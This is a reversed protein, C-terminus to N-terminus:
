AYIIELLRNIAGERSLRNIITVLEGKVMAQAQWGGWAESYIITM